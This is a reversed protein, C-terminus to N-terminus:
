RIWAIKRPDVGHVQCWTALARGLRLEDEDNQLVVQFFDWHRPWNGSYGNVTPKGRELGAWMADLHYNIWFGSAGDPTYLFSDHQEPVAATLEQVRHRVALKDYSPLTAGQELLCILFLAAILGFRRKQRLTEATLAVGLGIPILAFIGVRCVARIAAAGPVLEFVGRWASVDGPVLTALLIVMTLPVTTYLVLPRRRHLALGAVAVMATIVGVGLRHEHEYPLDRFIEWDTLHGYLWNNPGAYIWSEFRLLMPLADEFSRYGVDDAANLYPRVLPAILITGVALSVPLAFTAQHGVRGLRLRGNPIAMAIGAGITVLLLLLWGLYLSAAVQGALAGVFLLAYLWPRYKPWEEPPKKTDGLSALRLLAYLALLIYFGSLLQPHNLQQLRPSGFAFIAAGFASAVWSLRLGHRLVLLGALYNLTSLMILWLQFATDPVVGMSRWLWYFPAVGLLTESYAATNKAPHFIPPSWFSSHNPDGTLWRYGHELVLNVFRSDVPDAISNRFGSLLVPHFSLFLGAMCIGVVVAISCLRKM